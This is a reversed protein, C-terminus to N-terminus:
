PRTDPGGGESTGGGEAEVATYLDCEGSAKGPSESPSLGFYQKVSSNLTDISSFFLFTAM